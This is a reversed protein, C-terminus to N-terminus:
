YAIPETRLYKLLSEIIKWVPEGRCLEIEIEQEEYFYLTLTPDGEDLPALIGIQPDGPQEEKTFLGDFFFSIHDGKSDLIIGGSMGSPLSISTGGFLGTFLREHASPTSGFTVTETVDEEFKTKVVLAQLQQRLSQIKEEDM